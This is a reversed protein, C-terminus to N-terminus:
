FDFDFIQLKAKEYEHFVEHEMFLLLSLDNRDKIDAPIIKRASTSKTVDCLECKIVDSDDETVEAMEREIIIDLFSQLPRTDHRLLGDDNGLCEYIIRLNDAKM